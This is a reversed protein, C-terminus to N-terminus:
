FETSKADLKPTLTKLWVRNHGVAYLHKLSKNSDLCDRVACAVDHHGLFWGHSDPLMSSADDMVLYGGPKIHPVYRMIDKCVVDYNHCGDIFLIDIGGIKSVKDITDEDQSITPIIILNDATNNFKIFNNRIESSYDCIPYDSYKDGVTSLPTIGVITASKNSENAIMGVQSVIRGKFVGIEVFTFSPPMSDVLLKWNWSFAPEGFGHISEFSTRLSINDSANKEFAEYVTRYKNPVNKDCFTIVDEITEFM